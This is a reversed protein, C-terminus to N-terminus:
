RGDGPALPLLVEFSSGEGLESSLTVTGGHQAVVAKVIALGLGTGTSSQGRANAARYFEDFIRERDDEPIGIGTDAVVLRLRDAVRELTVAVRGGPPTYRVANQVLNRLLQGLGDPDGRLPPMRQAIADSLAVGAAEAGPRAEGVIERALAGVDVPIFEAPATVEHARSLALLDNVVVALEKTRQAVRAVHGRAPAPLDGALGGLVIKLTTHVTGLPGRLEHAVKRLYQSKFRETRRVQELAEGLRRARDELQRSLGMVELERGRLHVAITSGLYAALHLTVGLVLLQAAILLPDRFAGERWTDALPYHALLGTAEGAAVVWILGLGLSAHAVTAARSLLMAAIIIHFVFFTLFPNEVGGSFHLITALLVLDLAMQLNAFLGARAIHAEHGLGMYEQPVLVRALVLQWRAAPEAERRLLRRLAFTYVVNTAALTAIALYLAALPLEVRFVRRALEVYVVVGVVAFWRLRILWAIRGVLEAAGPLLEESRESM